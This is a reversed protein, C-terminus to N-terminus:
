VHYVWFYIYHVSVQCYYLTSVQLMLLTSSAQELTSILVSDPTFGTVTPNSVAMLTLASSSINPPPANDLRLIYNIMGTDAMIEPTICTLVTSKVVACTSQTERQM